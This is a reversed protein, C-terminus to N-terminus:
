GPANKIVWAVVASFITTLTIGIGKIYSIQKECKEIKDRLWLSKSVKGDISKLMDFLMADRNKPDEAKLFTEKTIEPM